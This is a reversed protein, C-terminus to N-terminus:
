RQMGWAQCRHCQLMQHRNKLKDFQIIVNQICKINIQLDNLTTYKDTILVYIPQKTNMKYINIVRIKYKEIEENMEEIEPDHVIGYIVFGYTRDKNPTYTNQSTEKETAFANKLSVYDDKNQTFIVTNNRTFKM